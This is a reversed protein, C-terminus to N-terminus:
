RPQNKAAQNTHRRSFHSIDDIQQTKTYNAQLDPQLAQQVTDFRSLIVQEPAYDTLITRLQPLTLSGSLFRKTSFVAIEPPIKLNSYFGFILSDTFLWETNASYTQMHELMAFPAQSKELFRQTTHHLLALKIPLGILLSLALLSATTITLLSAHPTLRSSRSTSPHIPPHTSPHSPSHTPSSPLFRHLQHHWFTLAPQVSYATLWTLPLSILLYYHYWIPRHWALVTLSALLWLLPISLGSQLTNLFHSRMNGAWLGWLGLGALIWYDPDKVFFNLYGGWSNQWEVAARINTDFHSLTSQELSQSPLLFLAIATAMGFGLSWVAGRRLVPRINRIAPKPSTPMLLLGLLLVPLLFLTYAKIQVSLALWIGSLLLWGIQATRQYVLLTYMALVALSLSPIGMMVAASFQVFHSSIMLLVVGILAAPAGVTLWMCHGFAWVLVTAFGLTLLRAALVSHGFLQLWAAWLVTPLPPQDSWIESYLQFGRQYLDAKTLEIGEDPDFQFVDAIATWRYALLVFVLPVALNFVWGWYRGGQEGQGQKGLEESRM